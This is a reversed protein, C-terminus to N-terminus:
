YIPEGNCDIVQADGYWRFGATSTTVNALFDEKTRETRIIVDSTANSFAQMGIDIINAPIYVEKIFMKDEYLDRNPYTSNNLGGNNNFANDPLSTLGKGIVIKKIPNNSFMAGVFSTVHDPIILEEIENLSFASSAKSWDVGTGIKYNKIRNGRFVSIIGSTVSDPIIVQKLSNHLFSNQDMTTLTEPFMVFELKGYTDIPASIDAAFSFAGISLLGDKFLVKEITPNLSFSHIGTKIISRPFEVSTLGKEKFANAGIQTVAVGDIEYPIVVDTGGCTEDYATISGSEFTFCEEKTYYKEIGQGANIEVRSLFTSGQDEIDSEEDIWIRLTHTNSGPTDGVKGAVTDYALVRKEKVEEDTTEERETQKEGLM